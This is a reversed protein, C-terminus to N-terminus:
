EVVNGTNIQTHVKLHVNDKDIDRLLDGDIIIEQLLELVGGLQHDKDQHDQDQIVILIVLLTKM